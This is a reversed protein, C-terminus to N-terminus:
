KGELNLELTPWEFCKLEDDDDNTNQKFAPQLCETDRVNEIWPEVISRKM